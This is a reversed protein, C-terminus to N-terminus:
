GRALSGSSGEREAASAQLELNAAKLKHEAEVQETLDINVGFWGTVQGEKDRSPQVRTLFPRFSEDAGKLPFVM